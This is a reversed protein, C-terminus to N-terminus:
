NLKNLVNGYILKSESSAVAHNVIAKPYRLNKNYDLGLKHIDKSSLKELEPIWKKIYKCDPDFKEQQRWPNFIRFYPQADCGTSAAWQWNGNNVAPDYDILKQAFYKEGWRWDIHLDKILFSATIMRVRNHMWGTTNLQRMGADVLPFGTNGDCWAQFKSKDNEWQVMDYKKHFSGGIVHPYHYIIHTFFDRWYLENILITNYGLSEFLSWYVKRISVTGFKNHASLLTTGKKSPINRDVSYNKLNKANELLNIAEKLGGKLLVNQNKHPLIKEFIDKEVEGNIKEKYYNKHNNNVPKSVPILKSKRIFPTSITYPKGDDKIVAGPPNLLADHFINCEVGKKRCIMEINEDRKRSFPTYDANFFVAQINNQSLLNEVVQESNDYFIYLKGGKKILDTDLDKLCNIMFEVLYDSRYKNNELQKKDLIFCPIVNESDNLAAILATNDELRLDRRFIHLSLKYKKMKLPKKLCSSM